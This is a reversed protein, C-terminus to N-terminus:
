PAQNIFDAMEDFVYKSFAHKDNVLDWTSALNKWRLAKGNEVEMMILSPAQLQFESNYRDNEPLDYNVAAWSIGGPGSEDAFESIVTDRAMKEIELCTACRINGHFYVALIARGDYSSLDFVSKNDSIIQTAAEAAEEQIAPAPEENDSILRAGVIAGAVLLVLIATITYKVKM